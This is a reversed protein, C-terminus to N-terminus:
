GKKVLKEFEIRLAQNKPRARIAEALAIVGNQVEAIGYQERVDVKKLGVTMLGDSRAHESILRKIDEPECIVDGAMGLFSDTAYGEASEFAAATGYKSGQTKYELKMGWKSGNGFYEKIKQEKYKVVLLAEKIGAQKVASLVHELIPRGAVPLMCKPKTYTLPRLREGEGAALIVAKM